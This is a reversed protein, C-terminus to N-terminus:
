GARGMALELEARSADESEQKALGARLAEAAHESPIVLVGDDDGVIVDGPSVPVGGLAIPVSHAGPGFKYPGAGTVARAFTPVDYATLGPVDRIAGDVVFGVAGRTKARAAILEGLLARSLDGEGNIVIVDGRQVESLADHIVKNDGARTWITFARGCVRAGPYVPRIDSSVMGLRGMGDAINAVPVTGIQAVLEDTVPAPERPTSAFLEM